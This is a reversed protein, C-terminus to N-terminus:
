TFLSAYTEITKLLEYSIQRVSAAVMNGSLPLNAGSYFFIFGLGNHKALSEYAANLNPDVHAGGEKNAMTLVFKKRCWLTGDSDRAIDETWWADFTAPPNIRNPPLPLRDLPPVYSAGVGATVQMIVLGPSSPLLNTPDIHYATDMFTMQHKVGLQDLLSHSQQTNHLLVRLAVALRKAEAEFGEDFSASSAKLFSLNEELLM